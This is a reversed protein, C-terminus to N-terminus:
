APSASPRTEPRTKLISRPGAPSFIAYTRINEPVTRAYPIRVTSEAAIGLPLHGRDAHEFLPEGDPAGGDGCALDPLEPAQALDLDTVRDAVAGVATCCWKAGGVISVTTARSAVRRRRARQADRERLEGLLIRQDVDPTSSM